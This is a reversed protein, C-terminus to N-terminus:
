STMFYKYNKNACNKPMLKISKKGNKKAVQMNKDCVIEQNSHM